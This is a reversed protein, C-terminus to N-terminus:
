SGNFDTPFRAGGEIKYDEFIDGASGKILFGTSPPEFEENIGAFTNLGGFLLENNVTTSIDEIGFRLRYAVARVPRFDHIRHNVPRYPLNYARNRLTLDDKQENSIRSGPFDDFRTLFKLDEELNLDTNEQENLRDLLDIFELNDEYDSLIWSNHIKRYNSSALAGANAPADTLQIFYHDFGNCLEVLQRSNIDYDEVSYHHTSIRRETALSASSNEYPKCTKSSKVSLNEEFEM